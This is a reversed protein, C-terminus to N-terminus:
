AIAKEKISSIDFDICNEKLSKFSRPKAPLRIFRQRQLARMKTKEAECVLVYKM